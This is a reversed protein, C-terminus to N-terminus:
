LWAKAGVGCEQNNRAYIFVQVNRNMNAGIVNSRDALTLSVVVYLVVAMQKEVAMAYWSAMVIMKTM